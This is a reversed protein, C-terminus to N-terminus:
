NWRIGARISFPATVTRVPTLSVANRSGFLNEVAAFILLKRLMRRSAYVDIQSFRGLRLSNRDDDFQSSSFRGFVALRWVASPEFSGKVTWQHTPVQPIKLGVLEPNGVFDTVRSNLFLYGANLSFFRKQLMAEFEFGNSAIRGANRRQRLILPPGEDTTVNSISNSVTTRFVSAQFYFPGRNRRMGGEINAAREARLDANPETLINGVRFGRYLENLTPSRFSKGISFYASWGRGFEGIIAAFPSVADESRDQFDLVTLMNSTLSRVVSLGRHNRWYDYRIAGIINIRPIPSFIDQFSVSYRRERGGAGSRSTANGGFFGTEDSAGRIEVGEGGFVLKHGGYLSFLNGSFGTRQAPVRQLRVLAEGSRDSFVASFSQDFVQTDSYARLVVRTNESGTAFGFPNFETGISFSRIHTRNIQAATGNGRAEGFLSTEGFLRAAKGLEHSFRFIFNSNRSNASTDVTGRSAEQVIRYGGTQFTSATLDANWRSKKVGAFFGGDFTNQNGASIEASFDYERRATRPAIVITGGISGSGYLPSSGGRLVEIREVSIKPIRSWTVWGGFPDTMPIGDRLVGSRSAGSSNVGRISAGQTTPNSTQSGSRRFLSFGISQRLVDDIASSPTQIIDGGDFVDVSAPTENLSSATKLAAVIVEERIPGPKLEFVLIDNYDQINVITQRLSLFGDARISIEIKETSELECNFLGDSDTLCGALKGGRTIEVLAGSIPLGASDLVKGKILQNQGQTFVPSIFILILVSSALCIQIKIKETYRM